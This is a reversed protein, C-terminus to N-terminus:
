SLTVNARGDQIPVGCTTGVSGYPKPDGELFPVVFNRPTAFLDSVFGLSNAVIIGTHKPATPDWKERNGIAWIRSFGHPHSLLERHLHKYMHILLPDHRVPRFAGFPPSLEFDFSRISASALSAIFIYITVFFPHSKIYSQDFNWFGEPSLFLPHFSTLILEIFTLSLMGEYIHSESM